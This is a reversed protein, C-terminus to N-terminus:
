RRRRVRGAAALTFLGALGAGGPVATATIDRLQLANMLPATFGSPSELTFHQFAAVATFTGVVHQGLGGATSSLTVQNM